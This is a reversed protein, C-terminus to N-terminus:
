LKIPTFEGNELDSPKWHRNPNFKTDWTEKIAREQAASIDDSGETLKMLRKLAVETLEDLAKKFRAPQKYECVKMLTSDDVASPTEDVPADGSIRVLLGNTFPDLATRRIRSQAMLRDRTTIRLESGKGQVKRKTWAGNKLVDVWFTGNTALKWVEAQYEDEVSYQATNRTSM